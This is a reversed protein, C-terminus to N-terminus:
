KLYIMRRMEQFGNGTMRYLYIGSTIAENQNNTGNWLCHYSGPNKSENVLTKVLKGDISFVEIKVHGPQAVHFRIVTSSNFPNPYNQILAWKLPSSADDFNVASGQIQFKWEQITKYGPKNTVEIRAQHTNSALDSDPTFIVQQNEIISKSAINEGDFYFKIEDERIGFYEDKFRASIEPRANNITADPAPNFGYVLPYGKLVFVAYYLNNTEDIEKLSNDEDIWVGIAWKASPLSDPLQVNTAFALSDDPNIVPCSLKGLFKDSKDFYKNSSLYISVSCSDSVLRGSNYIKFQVPVQEGITLTDAFSFTSPTLDTRDMRMYILCHVINLNAHGGSYGPWDYIVNKGDYNMYGQNKNGYPDNVVVSRETSSYGIGLIYHGSSTLSNLIVAPYRKNMETSFKAFSPSWDVTSNIKHQRAYQAMHEKANEWNNMIIFGYGGYGLNGDPDYGGINYTYGNYTYIDCIYRGFKSIHSYPSSCNYNWEPLINYFAIAMMASTAGCAWHGNFWNPVDYVQHLYPANFTSLETQDYFEVSEILNPKIRQISQKIEDYLFKQEVSTQIKQGSRQVNEIILQQSSIYVLKSTQPSCHVFRDISKSSGHLLIKLTGDFRCKMIRSAIVQFHDNRDEECFILYESDDLWNPSSGRGILRFDETEIDATYLYGTLSSFVIKKSDPSWIPNFYGVEGATIQRKFGAKLDLLWLQDNLDNYVIHKGDPSIPALNVYSGLDFEYNSRLEQDVVHLRNGITFAIMGSKSFSPVGASAVIPHLPIIEGTNTNYYVPQQQNIAHILKFGIKMEDASWSARYGAGRNSSITKIQHTKLSLLYLGQYDEGSFLIEEGSPSVVPCSIEPIFSEMEPLIQATIPSCIFLTVFGIIITKFFYKKM